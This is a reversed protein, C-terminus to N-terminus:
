DCDESDLGGTAKLFTNGDANPFFGGITSDALAVPNGCNNYSIPSLSRLDQVPNAFPAVPKIDAAVVDGNAKIGEISILGGTLAAEITALLDEIPKGDKDTREVCIGEEFLFGKRNEKSTVNSPCLQQQAAMAWRMGAIADAGFEPIKTLDNHRLKGATTSNKFHEIADQATLDNDQNAEIYSRVGDLSYSTMLINHIQMGAAIQQIVEVDARSINIELANLYSCNEIEFVENMHNQTACEEAAKDLASQNGPLTMINVVMNLDKNEKMFVRIGEWAARYEDMLGLADEETTIDEQGDLLFTKLASNPSKAIFDNYETQQEASLSNIVPRIRKMAGKMVMMPKILAKYFQARKNDPNARLALDFVLDAYMFSIPSVLQEGALALNEASEMMTRGSQQLANTDVVVSNKQGEDKNSCATNVVGVLGACVLPALLAKFKM